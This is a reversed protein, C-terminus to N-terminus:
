EGLVTPVDREDPIYSKKWQKYHSTKKWDYYFEIIDKVTKTQIHKQVRFFNKGYLTLTAEFISIEYPSWKEMITPRRLPSLLFGLSTIREIPFRCKEPNFGYPGFQKKTYMVNGVFNVYDETIKSKKCRERLRMFNAIKMPLDKIDPKPKVTNNTPIVVTSTVSSPVETVLSEENNKRKRSNTTPKSEM